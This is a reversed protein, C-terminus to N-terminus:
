PSPLIRYIKLPEGQPGGQFEAEEILRAGRRTGMFIPVLGPPANADLLLYGVQYRDAVALVTAEDGDPVVVSSLGTRYYFCPPNNVMVRSAAPAHQKLWNGATSYDDDQHSWAPSGPTTGVVSKQFVVGTTVAAVLVAIISFSLRARPVNWRRRAGIWTVARDVGLSAGLAFTPLLAAGSHLYGGRSGSWPFLVTMAAFLIAGYLVAWRVVARDRLQILGIVVFPFLVIWGQTFILTQLNWGLAQWRALLISVVGSSFFRAPTLASGPFHFLDDYRVLWLTRFGSPPFLSGFFTLNRWYWFATVVIYGVLVLGVRGAASGLERRLVVPRGNGGDAPQLRNRTGEAKRWALAAAALAMGVLLLGDARALHALGALVGLLLLLLPRRTRAAEVLAPFFIAGLLAYPAVSDTDSLYIAYFCPFAALFGAVVSVRRNRTIRWSMLATSLPLLAGILWFPLQAGRFGKSFLLSGLAAILSPLPMWYTHSPHPVGQPDDLYNWLYPDQLGAGSALSQGANYSYCADMYGPQQVFFAEVGVVLLGVVLLIGVWKLGLNPLTASNM